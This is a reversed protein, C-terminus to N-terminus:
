EFARLHVVDGAAVATEGADAEVVLRGSSDLRRATGLIAGSALDVRVRRGLTDCSRAYEAMQIAGGPAPLGRYRHELASLYGYLVEDVVLAGEKRRQLAAADELSVATEALEPPPGQPWRLNLGVGVVVAEVRSGELVAESLVGALKREGVLLDNPWKFRPRVGAVADCADATALAAAVGILHLEEPALAPRLLVSALLSSGPPAIWPRDRRGHGALQHDAVAVLGEPASRRAEDLLYSNTSDISDFRRVETFM